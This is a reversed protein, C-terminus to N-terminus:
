RWIWHPEGDYAAALTLRTEQLGNVRIAFVDMNNQYDIQFVVWQGDPSWVPDGKPPAISEISQTEHGDINAIEILWKGHRKVRYALMRGDPSWSPIGTEVNSTLCREDSNDMTLVCIDGLGSTKFYRYVMQSPNGVSWSPDTSAQLGQTVRTLNSGTIHVTYIAANGDRGSVFSINEGDPLWIPNTDGASDTTLRALNNGDVNVIYIEWDGTRFTEFVLRTGDPSWAPASDKAPDTTLRVLNSGDANVLYIDTNDDVMSVFAIRKGDPSWQPGHEESVVLDTLRFKESGDANMVYVKHQGDRDSVFAIKGEISIQEPPAEPVDASVPPPPPTVMTPPPLHAEVPIIPAPQCATLLLLFLPLLGLNMRKQITLNLHFSVIIEGYPAFGLELDM